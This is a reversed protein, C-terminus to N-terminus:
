IIMMLMWRKKMQTLLQLEIKLEKVERERKRKLAMSMGVKLRKLKLWNQRVEMMMLSIVKSNKKAAEVMRLPRITPIIMLMMKKMISMLEGLHDDRENAVPRRKLSSAAAKALSRFTEKRQNCKKTKKIIKIIIGAHMNQTRIVKHM